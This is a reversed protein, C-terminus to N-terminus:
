TASDWKVIRSNLADDHVLALCGLYYWAIAKSRGFDSPIKARIEEPVCIAETITDGGFFYAWSSKGNTWAQATQTWPDFTTANAAGGKPIFNQEIHRVAEYRGIEGRFIHGIGIETYQKITELDNKYPRYTSAHSIALYDDGIYPVINREKMMDVIAKIHGSRLEINNTTPAVGNESLTVSTTSTGTTATARLMTRNFQLFSEIDFFKRADNRLTQDIITKVDHKALMELRGTYPM